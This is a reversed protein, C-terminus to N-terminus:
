FPKRTLFEGLSVVCDGCLDEMAIIKPPRPEPRSRPHYLQAHLSSRPEERAPVANGCRDCSYTKVLHEAM